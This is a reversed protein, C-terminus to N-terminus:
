PRNRVTAVGNYLTIYLSSGNVAVGQPPGLRGPLAGPVFGPQGAVGVVTTVVGRPTVKRITYSDGDAVYLNGASDAAIGVPADFSAAAGTGDVSGSARPSGALTTVIGDPTIKRIARNSTEAVYVNGAIDTAIGRPANFRAAPGSGDVSGPAGALGALTTVAGDSSIKRVTDNFTDAM